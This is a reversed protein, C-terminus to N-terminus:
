IEVVKWRDGSLMLKNPEKNALCIVIPTPFVCLGGEYKGSYFCGDKLKELSTYNIYEFSSRPIDCIILEPIIENELSTRVSNFVDSKKGNCM